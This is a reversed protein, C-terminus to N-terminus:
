AVKMHGYVAYMKMRNPGPKWGKRLKIKTIVYRPGVIRRAHAVDIAIVDGILKDAM